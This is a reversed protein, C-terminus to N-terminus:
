ACPDTLARAVLGRCPQQGRRGGVGGGDRGACVEAGDEVRALFLSVGRHPCREDFIGPDGKSDRFAVLKEGLLLLRVPERDCELESSLIAPVWYQRMFDGMPTGKIVGTLSQTDIRSPTTM